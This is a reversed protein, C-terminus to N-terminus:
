PLVVVKTRALAGTSTAVELIYQGRAVGATQVQTQGGGDFSASGVWAIRGVADYMRVTTSKNWFNQDGTRIMFNGNSPNPAATLVGVAMPVITVATPAPGAMLHRPSKWMGRGYTSAWVESTKYNIHIDTVEISPLNANYPEWATMTTDRFFVGVDTGVYMTGNQKDIEMCHVPVNPLGTNRQTWTAPTSALTDAYWEAVKQGANYGSQTIWLHTSDRPDVHIDSVTGGPNPVTNWTIGFDRSWRM